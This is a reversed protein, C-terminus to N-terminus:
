GVSKCVCDNFGCMKLTDHGDDDVDDDDDHGNLTVFHHHFRAAVLIGMPMMRVALLMCGLLSQEVDDLAACHHFSRLVLFAERGDVVLLAPELQGFMPQCVVIHFANLHPITAITTTSLIHTTPPTNTLPTKYAGM